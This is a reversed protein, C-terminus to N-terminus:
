LIKLLCCRLSPLFYELNKLRGPTVFYITLNTSIINGTLLYLPAPQDPRAAAVFNEDVGLSLVVGDFFIV